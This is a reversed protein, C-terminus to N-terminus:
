ARLELNQPQPILAPADAGAAFTPVVALLLGLSTIAVLNQFHM